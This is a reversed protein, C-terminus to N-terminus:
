IKRKHMRLGIIFISISFLLLGISRFLVGIGLGFMGGGVFWLLVSVLSFRKSMAMYLSFLTNGIFWILTCSFYAVSLIHDNMLTDFLTESHKIIVPWIFIEYFHNAIFLIIGIVFIFLSIVGLKSSKNDIFQYISFVDFILVFMIILLITGFIVWTETVFMHNNGTFLDSRMLFLNLFWSTILSVAPPM